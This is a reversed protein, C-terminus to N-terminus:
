LADLHNDYEQLKDKQKELEKLHKSKKLAVKEEQTSPGPVRELAHRLEGAMKTLM